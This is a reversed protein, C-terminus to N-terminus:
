RQAFLGFLVAVVIAAIAMFAVFLTLAVEKKGVNKVNHRQHPSDSAESTKPAAKRKKRLHRPRGDPRHIPRAAPGLYLKECPLRPLGSTDAKLVRVSDYSDSVRAERIFTGAASACAAFDMRTGRLYVLVRLDAELPKPSM